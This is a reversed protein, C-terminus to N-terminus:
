WDEESSESFEEIRDSLGLAYRLVGPHVKGVERILRILQAKPRTSLSKWRPALDEFTAANVAWTESLASVHKCPSYESPCSCSWDRLAPKGRGKQLRARTHYTGYNGDITAVLWDGDQMRHRMRPSDVYEAIRDDEIRGQRSERGRQKM